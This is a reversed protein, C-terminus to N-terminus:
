FLSLNPYFVYYLTSEDDILLRDNCHHLNIKLCSADSDHQQYIMTSSYNSTSKSRTQDVSRVGIKWKSNQAM